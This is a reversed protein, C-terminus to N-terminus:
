CRLYKENELDHSLMVTIRLPQATMESWGCLHRTIMEVIFEADESRRLM